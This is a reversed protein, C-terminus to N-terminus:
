LVAVILEHADFGFRISQALAKALYFRGCGLGFGREGAFALAHPDLELRLNGQKLRLEALLFPGVRFMLSLRVPDFM